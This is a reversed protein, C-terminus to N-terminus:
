PNIEIVFPTSEQEHPKESQEEKSEPHKTDDDKNRLLQNAKETIEKIPKEVPNSCRKFVYRTGAVALGIVIGIIIVIKLVISSICGRRLKCGYLNYNKIPNGRKIKLTSASQPNNNSPADRVFEPKPPAVLVVDEDADVSVINKEEAQRKRIMNMANCRATLEENVLNVDDKELVVSKVHLLWATHNDHNDVTAAILQQRKKEDSAGSALLSAIEDNNMQELMGDSCMYFYDGPKIDTIQIIDPRTRNDEGPTIARTIVNKQPHVAMEDYSIEGTQFLDFVLSHDRSQYLIDDSTGTNPRVHYIRSDGVHAAIVGNSDLYLLTLTTGMKKLGDSDLKDLEEYAYSLADSVQEKSFPHKINKSFWEGLSQCVTQSAVEGKEHGGMGDCVLFLKDTANIKNPWLSDEQNSRKGIEHISLPTYLEIKM